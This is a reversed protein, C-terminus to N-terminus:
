EIRSRAGSLRMGLTRLSKPWRNTAQLSGPFNSLFFFILHSSRLPKCQKVASIRRFNWNRQTEGPSM